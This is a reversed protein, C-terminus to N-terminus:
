SRFFFQPARQSLYSRGIWLPVQDPINGINKRSILVIPAAGVTGIVFLNDSMWQYYEASDDLYQEGQYVLSKRGIGIKLMRLVDDPPEEMSSSDLKLGQEIARYWNWWAPAHIQFGSLDRFIYSLLESGLVSHSVVDRDNNWMRSAWMNRDVEQVRVQFGIDEWYQKVLEHVASDPFEYSPTFEITLVFEKGEADLRYGDASQQLGIVDLLAVADDRDYRVYPHEEAWEPKFFSSSPLVSANRPVASNAFVVQNIEDRDIALSMAQRFRLDNYLERRGPDPHNLNFGYAANNGFIGSFHRVSYNGFQNYRKHISYSTPPSFAIDADEGILKQVYTESDVIHSVVRDIYPLQQYVQDVQFFYPNREFEGRGDARSMPIWPDTRPMELNANSAREKFLKWWEDLGEEKALRDADENYDIHWKQLYHRPSYLNWYTSPWGTLELLLSPYPRELEFVVTYDDLAIVDSIISEFYFSESLHENKVMDHFRFTFDKATLLKGDSWRMGERLRVTFSQHDDAVEFGHALWPIATGSADVQLLTPIHSRSGSLVRLDVERITFESIEGGFTGVEAVDIVLPETPLRKEVPELEGAQVRAALMPSERYVSTFTGKSEYSVVEFEYSLFSRLMEYTLEGSWSDKGVIWDRPESDCGVHRIMYAGEFQDRVVGISTLDKPDFIEIRHDDSCEVFGVVEKKQHWALVGEYNREGIERALNFSKGNGDVFVGFHGGALVTVNSCLVLVLYGTTRLSRKFLSM